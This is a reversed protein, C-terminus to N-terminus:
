FAAVFATLRANKIQREFASMQTNVHAVYENAEKDATLPIQHLSLDPVHYGVKANISTYLADLRAAADASLKSFDYGDASKAKSAISKVEAAGAASVMFTDKFEADNAQQAFAVREALSGKPNGKVKSLDVGQVSAFAGMFHGTVPDDAATVTDGSLGKLVQRDLLSVAPLVHLSAWHVGSALWPLRPLDLFFLSSFLNKQHQCAQRLLSYKAQGFLSPVTRGLQSARSGM